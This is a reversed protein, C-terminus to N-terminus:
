TYIKKDRLLTTECIDFECVSLTSYTYITWTLLTTLTVQLWVKKSKM